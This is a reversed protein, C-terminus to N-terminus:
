GPQLPCQVILNVYKLGTVKKHIVTLSKQYSGTLNERHENSNNCLRLINENQELKKQEVQLHLFNRNYVSSFYSDM